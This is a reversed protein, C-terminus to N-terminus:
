KKELVESWAIAWCKRCPYPYVKGFDEPLGEIQEVPDWDFPGATFFDCVIQSREGGTQPPPITLDLLHTYRRNVRGVEYRAM